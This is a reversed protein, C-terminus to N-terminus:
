HPQRGLKSSRNCICDAPVARGPRHGRQSSNLPHLLCIQRGITRGFETVPGRASPTVASSRPSAAPRSTAALAALSQRSSRRWVLAREPIVAATVMRVSQRRAVVTGISSSRALTGSTYCTQRSCAGHTSIFPPLTEDLRSAIRREPARCLAKSYAESPASSPTVQEALM